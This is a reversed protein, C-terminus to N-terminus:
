NDVIEFSSSNIRYNRKRFNLFNTTRQQAVDIALGHFVTPLKQFGCLSALEENYRWQLDGIGLFHAQKETLNYKERKQRFDEDSDKIMDEVSPLVSPNELIAVAARAQEHIQPFYSMRYPIGIFMLNTYNINIMHKFLPTVRQNNVQVIDTSLFPFDYVYGTCFVISDVEAETGDVFVVNGNETINKVVPREMANPPIATKLASDRHSLFIQKAHNTMDAAIDLGSFSAGIILVTKGLYPGPLRYDRSHTVTGTFHEMGPIDPISHKYYHGNCVLVADFEQTNIKDPNQLSCYKVNWTVEGDKHNVPLVYKVLTNFQIFETLGNHKSFDELYKLVAKHDIYSRGKQDHPFGQLTLLQKPNNSRVITLQGTLNGWIVQHVQASKVAMLNKYLCSHEPLGFADVTNESYVWTGGIRSNREFATPKFKGPKTLLHKIASLGSVGAGIVAVSIQETSDTLHVDRSQISDKRTTEDVPNLWKSEFDLDDAMAAGQNHAEM